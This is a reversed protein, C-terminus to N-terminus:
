PSVNPPRFTPPGSLAPPPPISLGATRLTCDLAANVRDEGKDMLYLIRNRADRARGEKTVAKMKELSARNSDLLFNLVGRHWIYEAMREGIDPAAPDVPPCLKPYNKWAENRQSLREKIDEVPLGKLGARFVDLPNQRDFSIHLVERERKRFAKVGDADLRLHWEFIRDNHAYRAARMFRPPLPLIPRADEDGAYARNLAQMLGEM